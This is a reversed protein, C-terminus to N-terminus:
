GTTAKAAAKTAKTDAPVTAPDAAPAAEAQAPAEAPETAPSDGATHLKDVVAGQFHSVLLGFRVDSLVKHLADHLEQELHEMGAENKGTANLVWSM